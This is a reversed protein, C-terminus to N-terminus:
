AADVAVTARRELAGWAVMPGRVATVVAKAVVYYMLQRYGFRQLPVWLIDRWPARREMAMGLACASLDVLVFVAWYLVPLVVKEQDWQLPHAYHAILGSVVSWVVALDVLPAACALVIQFLWIQPLAVFGLVPHARSFLAGRHKWICQLTGFSWRFRQKLLDRVTDPAETWARADPDFEVRWGARQVALTLDQDEALTDDPYGGLALLTAKRWAGVAGPVVTVAGLAALARRELNQAIVYELAQWRTILNVRNGVLADGAVAGVEPDDFWRALKAITLPEFQTDADLAVVIEGRAEALGRNLARAKGGNAFSM